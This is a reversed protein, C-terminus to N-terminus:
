PRYGTMLWEWEAGERSETERRQLQGPILVTSYQAANM